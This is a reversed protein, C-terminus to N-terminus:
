QPKSSSTTLYLRDIGAGKERVAISLKHSGAGLRQTVM